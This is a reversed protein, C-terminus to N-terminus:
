PITDRENDRIVVSGHEMDFFTTFFHTYLRRVLDRALPEKDSSVWRDRL